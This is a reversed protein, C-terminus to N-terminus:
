ATKNRIGYRLFLDGSPFARHELLTLLLHLGAPLYPTGGGLVVPAIRLHLEDVLGARLAHAALTPGCIAVDTSATSKIRRITDPDFAPRITTNPSTAQTLTTSFVIKQAAQWQRAFDAMFPPQNPLTDATQWYLMTQYMRRGYLLTHFSAAHAFIFARLEEDHFPAAFDFSGEADQTYLDLSLNMFYILNPM